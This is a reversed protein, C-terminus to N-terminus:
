FNPSWNSAGYGPNLVFGGGIIQPAGGMTAPSQLLNLCTTLSVRKNNNEITCQSWAQKFRDNVKEYHCTSNGVAVGNHCIWPSCTTNGSCFAYEWRNVPVAGSDLEITSVVPAAARRDCRCVNPMANLDSRERDSIYTPQRFPPCDDLAWAQAPIALVMVTVVNRANM